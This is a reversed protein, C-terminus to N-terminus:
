SRLTQGYEKALSGAYSMAEGLDMVTLKANNVAYTMSDTVKTVNELTHEMGFQNLADIAFGAAEDAAVGTATAFDLMQQTMGLIGEQTEGAQALTAMLSSVEGATYRTERGLRLAEENLEKLGDATIGNTRAEVKRMNTDLEVASKAAKYLGTGLILSAAGMAMGARRARVAMRDLKASVTRLKGSM